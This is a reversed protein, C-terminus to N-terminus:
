SMPLLKRSMVLAVATEELAQDVVDVVLENLRTDLDAEGRVLDPLEGVAPDVGAFLGLLQAEDVLRPVKRRRWGPPPSSRPSGPFVGPRRSFRLVLEPVEDVGRRMASGPPAARRRSV